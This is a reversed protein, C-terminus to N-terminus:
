SSGSISTRWAGSSPGPHAVEQELDVRQSLLEAAQDRDVVDVERDRLAGDHAQDPGVAGALRREEVHDGADVLRGRAADDEVAPVDGTRRWVGGGLAADAPRELVDAEKLLHRRELVDEDPHMAAQLAPDDPADQARPPDPALLAFRMLPCRLQEVVAPEGATVVVVCPVERVAILPAELDGTRERRLGLEQEEVLGGRPHVRLFRQLEDAEDALHAVVQLEGDQEDLVVHLEDHADGLPDRHEVVACFIESPVGCSTWCSGFTM